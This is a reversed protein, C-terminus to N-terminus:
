NEAGELIINLSVFIETVSDCYYINGVFYSPLVFALSFSFSTLNVRM